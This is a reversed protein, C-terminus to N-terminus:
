FDKFIQSRGAEHVSHHVAYDLNLAQVKTAYTSQIRHGVVVVVVM